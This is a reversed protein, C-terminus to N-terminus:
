SEVESVMKVPLVKRQIKTNTELHGQQGQEVQLVGFKRRRPSEAYELPASM